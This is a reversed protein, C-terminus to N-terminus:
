VDSGARAHLLGLDDVVNADRKLLSQSTNLGLGIDADDGGDGLHENGTPVTPGDERRDIRNERANMSLNCGEANSSGTDLYKVEADFNDAQSPIPEWFHYIIVKM